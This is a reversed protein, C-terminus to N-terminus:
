QTSAFEAWTDNISCRGHPLHHDADMPYSVLTWQTIAVQQWVLLVPDILSLFEIYIIVYNIIKHEELEFDGYVFWRHKSM